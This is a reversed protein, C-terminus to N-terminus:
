RGWIWPKQAESLCLEFFKHRVGDEPKLRGDPDLCLCSKILDSFAELQAESARIKKRGTPATEDKEETLICDKLDDKVLNRGRM